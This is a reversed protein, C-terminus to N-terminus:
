PSVFREISAGRGATLIAIERGHRQALSVNVGDPAAVVRAQPVPPIELFDAPLPFPAFGYFATLYDTDSILANPEADDPGADSDGACWGHPVSVLTFAGGHEASYTLCSSVDATQHPTAVGSRPFVYHRMSRMSVGTVYQNIHMEAEARRM